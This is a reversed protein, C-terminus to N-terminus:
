YEPRRSEFKDKHPEMFPARWTTLFIAKRGVLGGLTRRSRVTHANVVMDNDHQWAEESLSTRFNGVLTPHSAKSQNPQHRIFPSDQLSPDLGALEPLIYTGSFEIV